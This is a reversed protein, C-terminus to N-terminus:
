GATIRQIVKGNLRVTVTANKKAQVVVNNNGRKADV